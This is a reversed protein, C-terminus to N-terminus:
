SSGRKPQCMLTLLLLGHRVIIHDDLGTTKGQKDTKYLLARIKKYYAPSLKTLHSQFASKQKWFLPPRLASIATQPTEGTQLRSQVFALKELYLTVARLLGIPSHGESTFYDYQRCFLPANGAFCANILASTDSMGQDVLGNDVDEATIHTQDTPLYLCLKDLESELIGQDTTLSYTLTELAQPDITKKHTQLFQRIRSQTDGADPLYCPVCAIVDSKEAWKRLTSSSSLDGGMIVMYNTQPANEFADKLLKTLKDTAPKIIIYHCDAFLSPGQYLNLLKEPQKAVTSGDLALRETNDKNYGWATLWQQARRKALGQDPGYVLLLRTPTSKPNECFTALNKSPIKM